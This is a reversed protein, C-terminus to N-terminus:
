EARISLRRRNVVLCLARLQMWCALEAEVSDRAARRSTPGAAELRGRLATRTWLGGAGASGRTRWAPEGPFGRRPAGSQRTTLMHTSTSLRDTDRSTHM